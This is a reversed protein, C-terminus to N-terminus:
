RENSRWGRSILAYHIEDSTKMSNKFLKALFLGIFDRQTENALVIPSRSIRAFYSDCSFRLIKRTNMIMITLILRLSSPLPIAAMLASISSTSTLLLVLLLTSLSRLFLREAAVPEAVALAPLAIVTFFALSTLFFPLVRKFANGGFLYLFLSSCFAFVLASLCHTFAIFIVASLVLTVKIRVDIGSLISNGTIAHFTALASLFTGASKELLRGRAM